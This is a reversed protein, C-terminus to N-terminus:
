VVETVVDDVVHFTHTVDEYVCMGRADVTYTDPDPTVTWVYDYNDLDDPEDPMSHINVDCRGGHADYLIDIMDAMHRLFRLARDPDDVTMDMLTERLDDPDPDNHVSEIIERLDNESAANLGDIESESADVIDNLYNWTVGIMLVIEDPHDVRVREIAEVTERIPNHIM